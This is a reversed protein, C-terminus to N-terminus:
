MKKSAPRWPCTSFDCSSRKSTSKGRYSARIKGHRGWWTRLLGETKPGCSKLGKTSRESSRCRRVASAPAKWTRRPPGCWLSSLLSSPGSPSSPSWSTAPLRLPSRPQWGSGRVTAKIFSSATLDVIDTGPPHTHTWSSYTQQHSFPM